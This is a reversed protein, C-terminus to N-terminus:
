DRDHQEGVRIGRARLAIRYANLDGRRPIGILRFVGSALQQVQLPRMEPMFEDVAGAYRMQADDSLLHVRQNDSGRWQRTNSCTELFPGDILMDTQALLAATAGGFSLLEEYLFGSYILAEVPQRSRLVALLELVAEPQEFPEGGSITLGDAQALLPLLEEAVTAPLRPTGPEWLEPAICGPCRRSCGRVWLAVRRGPGLGEVPYAYGAEDLLPM